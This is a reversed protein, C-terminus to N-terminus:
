FGPALGEKRVSQGVGVQTLTGLKAEVSAVLQVAAGGDTTTAVGQGGGGSGQQRRQSEVLHKGPTHPIVDIPRM